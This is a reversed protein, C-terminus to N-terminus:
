VGVCSSPYSSSNMHTQLNVKVKSFQEAIDRLVLLWIRYELLKMKLYIGKRSLVHVFINMSKNDIITLYWFYCLSENINFHIISNIECLSISYLLLFFHAIAIDLLM